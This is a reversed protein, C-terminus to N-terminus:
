AARAVSRWSTERKEALVPPRRVAVARSAARVLDAIRRRIGPRRMARGVTTTKMLEGEGQIRSVTSLPNAAHAGQDLQGWSEEGKRCRVM